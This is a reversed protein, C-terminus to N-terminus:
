LLKKIEKVVKTADWTIHEANKQVSFHCELGQKKAIDVLTESHSIDTTEDYEPHTIYLTHKTSLKTINLGTDFPHRIWKDMDYRALDPHLRLAKHETSIFPAILATLQPASKVRCALMVAAAAGLSEGVVITPKRGVYDIIKQIDKRWARQSPVGHHNAYGTLSPALFGYGQDQIAKLLAIRYHRDFVQGEEPEGVDGWHGTNGHFVIFLPKKKSTSCYWAPVKNGITIMQTKVLGYHNPPHIPELGKPRPKFIMKEQMVNLYLLKIFSIPNM